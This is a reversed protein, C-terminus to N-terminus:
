GATILYNNNVTYRRFEDLIVYGNDTIWAMFADSNVDDVEIFMDPKYRGIFDSMGKLVEIELGEVDIKVLDFDCDFIDDGKILRIDGEGDTSVRGGGINDETWGISANEITESHLGFGLHSIDCVESLNNIAINTKLIEIIRPNVEISKIHSAKLIKGFFVTHNGVNSGIDLLRGGKPFRKSMLMLEDPEYFVGQLHYSQILDEPQDTAFLIEEGFLRTKTIQLFPSTFSGLNKMDYRSETGEWILKFEYM